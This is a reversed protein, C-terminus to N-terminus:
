YLQNQKLDKGMMGMALLHLAMGVLLKLVMDVLELGMGVIDEMAVVTLMTKQMDGM